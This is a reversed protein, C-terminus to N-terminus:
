RFLPLSGTLKDVAKRPGAVAVGVYPLEATPVPATRDAYEDYTRSSQAISTFDVAIVDTRKQAALVIDRVQDADAVLVPVPITTVGRHVTGSGDKVAPGVVGETFRGISLALVSGANMALGPPLARDVVIACKEPGIAEEAVEGDKGSSVTPSVILTDPEVPARGALERSGVAVGAIVVLGGLLQRGQISEGTVTAASVLGFVPVLNLLGVATSSAMGTLGYNYLLFAAVSCFVALYGVLLATSLPPVRWEGPEAVLAALLFGLAGAVTQYYTAVLPSCGRSSSRSLFTYAAWVVSNLLMLLDGTYRHTGGVAAGNGVILGVGTMAVIVGCVRTVRLRQRVVLFEICMAMLPQAAVILAADSATALQLGINEMAFFVTIGLVGSASLMLLQRGQPRTWGPRARVIGALLVAALLFRWSGSTVPGVHALVRKAVAYSTSWILAAAIVAAVQPFRTTASIQRGGVPVATQRDAPRRRFGDDPRAVGSNRTM